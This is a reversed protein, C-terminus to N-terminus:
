EHRIIGKLRNIRDQGILKIVNRKFAVKKGKWSASYHHISYTESCLLNKSNGPAIPDFFSPPYIVISEGLNIIKDSFCFGKEQLVKTNLIPCALDERNDLSFSIHHYVDLMEKLIAEKSVSGFGLGTAIYGGDQQTAFFTSHQILEDLGRLLEVDTDLYIGGNEYIIKLRAYDSVFAWSKSQYAKKVFDCCNIDFNSEDWRIIEFDPCYKKWSKICKKVSSPLEKGGFWCYHIKKPIMFTDGKM